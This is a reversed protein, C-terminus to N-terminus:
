RIAVKSSVIWRNGKNGRENQKERASNVIALTLLIISRIM